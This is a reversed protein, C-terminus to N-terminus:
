YSTPLSVAMVCTYDTSQKLQFGTTSISDSNVDLVGLILELEQVWSSNSTLIDAGVIAQIPESVLCLQAKSSLAYCYYYNNNSYNIRLYRTSPNGNLRVM